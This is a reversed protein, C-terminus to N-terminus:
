RIVLKGDVVVADVEATEGYEYTWTAKFLGGAPQPDFSGGVLGRGILNILTAIAAGAGKKTVGVAYNPVLENPQDSHWGQLRPETEGKHVALTANPALSHVVIAQGDLSFHVQEPGQGTLRAAPNLHLWQTFTHERPEVGKAPALRDYVLLWKNPNLVVVRRHEVSKKRVVVADAYFWGQPTNGGGKLGSGYPKVFRRMDPTGDIEVTNHAHPSEVYIRSPHSYRFGLKGLDSAPAVKGEYAFRGPEVLIDHGLDSWEISLEDVHKHVRSHFAAAVALYSATEFRGDTGREQRYVAYGADPFLRHDEPYPREATGRALTWALLPHMPRQEGLILRITQETVFTEDTDGFQTLKGRPKIFWALAEQAQSYLKELKITAAASFGGAEIVPRLVELM